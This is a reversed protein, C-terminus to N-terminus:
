MEKVDRECRKVKVFYHQAREDLGKETVVLDPQKTQKNPPFFYFVFKFDNAALSVVRVKHKLINQVM